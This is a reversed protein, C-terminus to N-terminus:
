IMPQYARPFCAHACESVKQKALVLSEGFFTVASLFYATDNEPQPQVLSPEKRGTAKWDAYGALGGLSLADLTLASYGVTGFKEISISEPHDEVAIGHSLNYFPWFFHLLGHMFALGYFVSQNASFRLGQMLDRRESLRTLIMLLMMNTPILWPSGLAAPTVVYCLASIAFSWMAFLYRDIYNLADIKNFLDKVFRMGFIYEYGRRYAEQKEPVKFVRPLHISLSATIGLMAGFGTILAVVSNGSVKKMLAAGMLAVPLSGMFAPAIKKFPESPMMCTSVVGTLLSVGAGVLVQYGMDVKFNSSILNMVLPPVLGAVLSFLLALYVWKSEGSALWLYEFVRKTPLEEGLKKVNYLSFTVCYLLVSPLRLAALVDFLVRIFSPVGAQQLALLEALKTLAPWKVALWAFPGLKAMLWPILPFDAVRPFFLLQQLVTRTPLTGQMFELFQRNKGGM